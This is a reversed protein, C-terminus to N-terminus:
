GAQVAEIVRKISDYVFIQSSQYNRIGASDLRVRRGDATIRDQVNGYVAAHGTIVIKNTADFAETQLALDHSYLQDPDLGFEGGLMLQKADDLHKKQDTWPEATLGAHIAIHKEDEYYMPLTTLFSFLGDREMAEHLRLVKEYPQDKEYKSGEIGWARLAMHGFVRSGTWLRVYDQMDQDPVLGNNIASEINFAALVAQIRDFEHNGLIANPDDPDYNERLQKLLEPEELAGDIHDGVWVLKSDHGYINIVASQLDFRGQRDAVFVTREPSNM